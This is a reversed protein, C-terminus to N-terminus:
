KALAWEAASPDFDSVAVIEFDFGEFVAPDFVVPSFVPPLSRSAPLVAQPKVKKTEINLNSPNFDIGGTKEPKAPLVGTKEEYLSSFPSSAVMGEGNIMKEIRGMIAAENHELAYKFQELEGAAFRTEIEERLDATESDGANLFRDRIEGDIIGLILHKLEIYKKIIKKNIANARKAGEQSIEQSILLGMFPEVFVRKELSEFVIMRYREMSRFIHPEFKGMEDLLLDDKEMHELISELVKRRFIEAHRIEEGTVAFRRWGEDNLIISIDVDGVAALAVRGDQALYMSSGSVFVRDILRQGDGDVVRAVAQNLVANLRVPYLFDGEIIPSAAVRGNMIKEIRGRIAVINDNLDQELRRREGAALIKKVRKRLEAMQAADGSNRSLQKQLVRLEVTDGEVLRKLETYKKLFKLDRALPEKGALAWRETRTFLDKDALREKLSKLFQTKYSSDSLFVAGTKAQRSDLFARQKDYSLIRKLAKEFGKRFIDAAMTGRDVRDIGRRRFLNKKMERGAKNLIIFIDEDGVAGLAVKGDRALYQLSGNVFAREFIRQGRANRILRAARNLARNLREPYLFGREIIPPVAPKEKVEGDGMGRREERMGQDEVPSGARGQGWKVLAKKERGDDRRWIVGCNKGSVMMAAAGGRGQPLVRQVRAFPFKDQIIKKAERLIKREKANNEHTYFVVQLSTLDPPLKEMVEQVPVSFDHGDKDYMGLTFHGLGSITDKKNAGFLGMGACVSIGETALRADDPPNRALIFKSEEVVYAKVGQGLQMSPATERTILRYNQKDVDYHGFDEPLFDFYKIEPVDVFTRLEAFLPNEEEDGMKGRGPSTSLSTSTYERVASRSFAGHSARDDGEERNKVFAPSGAGRLRATVTKGSEMEVPQFPREVLASSVGALTCGGSFYRRRIQKRVPSLGTGVYEKKIINYAGKKYAELYKQYVNDKIKPDIKDIGKIKNKDIYLNFANLWNPGNSEDGEPLSRKAESKIRNNKEAIMQKKEDAIMLAARLRRKFWTALVVAHYIRRLEAFQKGNNVEEEIAPVIIERMIQSSLENLGNPGNHRNLRNSSKLGAVPKVPEVPEVNKKMALYDSELMVKLKAEGVMAKDGDAYVVAKDPVIWVKSFTNIIRNRAPALGAGVNNNIREYVRDWFKKGLPSEPYTLSASLQKLIYDQNLLGEGMDTADLGAPIVRNQEYPSLNVWLDNEPITLAALFYRILKEADLKLEENSSNFNGSDIIFDLKLPDRPYFKIGKLTPPNFAPSASILPYAQPANVLTSASVNVGLSTALLCLVLAPSVAKILLLKKTGM